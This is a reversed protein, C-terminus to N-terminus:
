YYIIVRRTTYHGKMIAPKQDLMKDVKDRVITVSEKTFKTRRVTWNHHQDYHYTYSTKSLIGGGAKYYVIAVPDNYKNFTTKYHHILKPAFYSQETLRGYSDYSSVTKSLLKGRANQEQKETQNGASDYAFSRIQYLTDQSYWRQEELQGLHNYSNLVHSEHIAMPRSQWLTSDYVETVNGKDDFSFTYIASSSMSTQSSVSGDGRYQWITRTRIKDPHLTAFTVVEEQHQEDNYSFQITSPPQGHDYYTHSLCRRRKDFSYQAYYSHFDLAHARRLENSDTEETLTKVPGRLDPVVPHGDDRHQTM